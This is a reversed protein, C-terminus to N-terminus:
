LKITKIAIKNIQKELVKEFRKQVSKDSFLKKIFQRGKFGPHRIAKTFVYGESEFAINGPIPPRTKRGGSPKKFRLFKKNKAWQIKPIRGGELSAIVVGDPNHFVYTYGGQAFVSWHKSTDGTAKPTRMKLENVYVLELSNLIADDLRKFDILGKITLDMM